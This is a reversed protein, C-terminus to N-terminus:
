NFGRQVVYWGMGLDRKLVGEDQMADTMPLAERSKVWVLPYYFTIPEISLSRVPDSQISMELSSLEASDSVYAAFELTGMSEFSRALSNYLEQNKRFHTETQALDRSSWTCSTLSLLFVVRGILSRGWNM